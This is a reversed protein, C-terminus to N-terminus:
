SSRLVARLFGSFLPRLRDVSKELRHNDDFVTLDARHTRAFRVANDVPVVDDRWGHVVAVREPLNSFVHVAYGPFYFAPAILFLGRVERRAAAAAAVYGGMSSGAIVAPGDAQDLLALLMSVREDPNETGSFDPAQMTLGAEAATAALAESKAGWPKALSGHCWFLSLDSM